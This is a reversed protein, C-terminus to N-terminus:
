QPEKLFKRQIIKEEKQIQQTEPIKLKTEGEKYLETMLISLKVHKTCERTEFKGWLHTFLSLHKPLNM